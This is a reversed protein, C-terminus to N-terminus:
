RSRRRFSCLFVLRQHVAAIRLTATLSTAADISRGRNVPLIVRDEASTGDLVFPTRNMAALIATPRIAESRPRGQVPGQSRSGSVDRQETTDHSM